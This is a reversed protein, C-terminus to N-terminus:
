LLEKKWIVDPINNVKNEYRSIVFFLDSLRNLYIVIENRIEVYKKLRIVAREARRCVTRAFHFYAAGKSGGPLIFNKLEPLELTLKDILDELYQISVKDIKDLGFKSMLSVEPTALESGIIFLQNQIIELNKNLESNTTFSKCIGLVANMEDISGYAEIRIHSKSVRKGGILGTFGKDGTKTYIKM